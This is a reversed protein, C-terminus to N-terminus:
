DAGPSHEQAIRPSPYTSARIVKGAQVVYSSVGDSGVIYHTLDPYSLFSKQDDVTLNSDAGPHTHWSGIATESYRMLDEGSIDFGNVPDECINKVDICLGNDLVFGCREKSM